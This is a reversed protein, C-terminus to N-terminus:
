QQGNTQKPIERAQTFHSHVPFGKGEKEKLHQQCESLNWQVVVLQRGEELAAVAVPVPAHGEVLESSGHRAAPGVHTDESCECGWEGM